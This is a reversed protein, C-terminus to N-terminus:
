VGRNFSPASADQAVTQADTAPAKPPQGGPASDSDGQRGEDELDDFEKLWCVLKMWSPGRMGVLMSKYRNMPVRIFPPQIKM